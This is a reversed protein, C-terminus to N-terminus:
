RGGTIPLTGPPGAPSCVPHPNFVGGCWPYVISRRFDSDMRLLIRLIGFPRSNVMHTMRDGMKGDHLHFTNWAIHGHSHLIFLVLLALYMHHCRFFLWSVSSSYMALNSRRGAAFPIPLVFSSFGVSTDQPRTRKLWLVSFCMRHIQEPYHGHSTCMLSPTTSPRTPRQIPTCTSLSTTSLQSPFLLALARSM